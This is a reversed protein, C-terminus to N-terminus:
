NDYYSFQISMQWFAGTAPIGSDGSDARIVVFLEGEEITNTNLSYRIHHNLKLPMMYDTRGTQGSISDPQVVYNRSAIIKYDTFQDPNRSAFYDRVGSITDQLYMGTSIDSITQIKGVYRVLTMNFKLKNVANTQAIFQGRLYAGSLKISRGTRQDYGSGQSITPTISSVYIGDVGNALQAVGVGFLQTTKIKKEANVMKKIASVEKYLKMRNNYGKRKSVYPKVVKRYAKRAYKKVTKRAKVYAM